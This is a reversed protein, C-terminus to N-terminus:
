DVFKITRREIAQENNEFTIIRDYLMSIPWGSDHNVSMHFDELSKFKTGNIKQKEKDSVADPLMSLVFPMLTKSITAEDYSQYYTLKYLSEKFDIQELLLSIDSKLPGIRENGSDIQEEVPVGLNLKIGYFMHFLQIDKIAIEEISSRSLGNESFAAFEEPLKLTQRIFDFSGKFKDRIEEWNLLEKFSGTEDTKFRAPTNQFSQIVSGMGSQEIQKGTTNGFSYDRYKWEVTYSNATSDLVSVDAKYRIDQTIITDKGTVKLKQWTLIYTHKESKDWYAVVQVTSDAPNIQGLFKLPLLLLLLFPTIRM